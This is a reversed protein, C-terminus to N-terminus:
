RSEVLDDLLLAANGGAAALRRDNTLLAAGDDLATALVVADPLSIRLEARLQAARDALSTTLPRVSLDPLAELAARLTRARHPRGLAYPRSLLEAVVLSATVLRHPAQANRTLVRDIVFRGRPSSADEFAYVFCNTDLALVEPLGM